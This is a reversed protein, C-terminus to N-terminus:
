LLPELLIVNASDMAVSSHVTGMTMALRSTNLANGDGDVVDIKTWGLLNIMGDSEHTSIIM